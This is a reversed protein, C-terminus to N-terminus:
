QIPRSVMGSLAHALLTVAVVRYAPRYAREFAASHEVADFGAAARAAFYRDTTSFTWPLAGRRALQRAAALACQLAATDPAAVTATAVFANLLSDVNGHRLMFPRLHVRVFRASTGLSDVLPEAPGSGLTALERQMWDDVMARDRVAHESGMTAQHLLKYLDPLEMVPYRAAHATILADWRASDACAAAISRDPSPQRNCATCGALAVVIAIAACHTRRV